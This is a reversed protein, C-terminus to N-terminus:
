AAQKMEQEPQREPNLWVENVPTWNRIERSWRQPHRQQAATYVQRRQKLLAVDAGQHRQEPTVFVIGSHRHESNYWRAFQQVWTRADDMNAFGQAPYDPRYKCTRFLSEVYANDDSVRPRSYSSAVGLTQMTARLTASKMPSGNDAHLVLPKGHLGICEALCSRKLLASANEGSEEAYIEWGVIKRSYLDLM